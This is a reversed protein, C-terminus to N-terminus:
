FIMGDLDDDITELASVAENLKDSLESFWEQREEQATTLEDRGEYHEIENYTDDVEAALDETADKLEWVKSLLERVLKKAESKTM